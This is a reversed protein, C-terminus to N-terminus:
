PLVKANGTLSIRFSQVQISSDVFPVIVFESDTSPVIKWTPKVFVTRIGGPLPGVNYSSILRCQGAGTGRTILIFDKTYINDKDSAGADLQITNVSGGLATGAYIIGLRQGFSGIIVHDKAQADWVADEIWHNSSASIMSDYVKAPIVEYDDKVGLATAVTVMIRLRGATNTDTTDLPVAYYGHERHTAGASNHSQGPADGDKSLRIDTHAITLDTKPTVLDNSAVFQGLLVTAATGLRLYKTATIVELRHYNRM